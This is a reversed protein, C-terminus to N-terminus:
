VGYGFNYAFQYGYGLINWSGKYDVFGISLLTVICADYRIDNERYFFELPLIMFLVDNGFKDKIAEQDKHPYFIAVQGRCNFLDVPSAYNTLDIELRFSAHDGIYIYKREGNIPSINELQVPSIFDPHMKANTLEIENVGIKMKPNELGLIM